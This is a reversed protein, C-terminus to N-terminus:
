YTIEKVDAKGDKVTVIWLKNYVSDDLNPYRNEKILLNVLAPTTNSHGAVIITKGTMQSLQGEF